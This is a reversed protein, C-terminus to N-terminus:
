PLFSSVTHMAPSYPPSPHMVMQLQLPASMMMMPSQTNVTQAFTLGPPAQAPLTGHNSYSMPGPVPPTGQTPYIMQPAASPPTDQTPYAMQPASPSVYAMQPDPPSAYTMQSPEQPPSTYTTMLPPHPAQGQTTTTTTTTPIMSNFVINAQPPVQEYQTPVEVMLNPSPTGTSSPTQGMPAPSGAQPPTDYMYQYNHQQIAALPIAIPQSSGNFGAPFVAMVPYPQFTYGGHQTDIHLPQTVGHESTYGEGPPVRAVEPQSPVEQSSVKPELSAPPSSPTTATSSPAEGGPPSSSCINHQAPPM